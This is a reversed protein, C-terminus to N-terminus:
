YHCHFLQLARIVLIKLRREVRAKKNTPISLILRSFYGRNGWKGRLTVFKGKETVGTYPEGKRM